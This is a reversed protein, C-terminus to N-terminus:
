LRERRGLHIREAPEVRERLHHLALDLDTLEGRCGFFGLGLGPLPEGNESTAELELVRFPPNWRDDCCVTIM